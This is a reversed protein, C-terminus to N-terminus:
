RQPVEDDRVQRQRRWNNEDTPVELIKTKDQM